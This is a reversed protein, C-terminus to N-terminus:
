GKAENSSLMTPDIQAISMNTPYNSNYETTIVRPRYGGELIAKAVWLDHSDMDVSLYDLELPVNYKQFIGVINDAFLYHKHLNIEL